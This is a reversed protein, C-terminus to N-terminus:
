PAKRVTVENSFLDGELFLKKSVRHFLMLPCFYAKALSIDHFAKM